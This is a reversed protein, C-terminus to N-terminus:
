SHHRRGDGFRHGLRPPRASACNRDGRGLLQQEHEIRKTRPGRLRRLLINRTFNSSDVHNRDRQNRGHCTRKGSNTGVQTDSSSISSDSSQYYRRTTPSSVDGRNRVRATITFTTGGFPTDNDVVVSEVVLDPTSTAGPAPTTAVTVAVASSCNNAADSEGTVADVCAGYYYTGPTPPATLRIFEGGSASANLRLVSDTGVETDGTTITSDTSQYYRLTTSDSRGSGQNRVTANLTIRAGATPAGDSVTPADVVLDPTPAAGVVVAVASSCNNATDSEGTVADVCGGYYYTGPTPPATLSISESDAERHM